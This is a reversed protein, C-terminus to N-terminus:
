LKSHNQTPIFSQRESKHFFMPQPHMPVPHQPFHKHWLPAPSLFSSIIAYHPTEYNNSM